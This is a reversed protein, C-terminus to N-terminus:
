DDFTVGFCEAWKILNLWRWISQDFRRRGDVVLQWEAKAAPLNLVPIDGGAGHLVGEVWPRLATLWAREPTAFGIKDRRDLIADPVLGRMAERFVAKTTGDPTIVHQEPLSFVFSALEPTLFPVRSEISHAMSNRDEYRLLSPLGSEILSRRLEERLMRKRRPKPRAALTVGRRKFWSAELWKPALDKGVLKRMLGQLMPPLLVEGSFALVRFRSSGPLGGATRLFRWAQGWKGQLLLSTFRMSLYTRYGALMEDAGQGDLMVKIGADRALRFVRQQAYISTSGFPEDQTRILEDLDAVMEEPTPRVQHGTAGTTAVVMDAWREETLAPDAAIHTFTHIDLDEGQIRRMGCVIASSDIGGSLAAGVPVDSRLHLRVSDIFLERLRGAAEEFSIDLQEDTKLEWYRVPGTTPSGDLPVELYHASPLQRIESFITEAGLSPVGFRLYEYLRQPNAAASVGTLSLLSKIESAFALRGNWFVYYVPKIAFFDRALVIRRRQLDLVACGFMGVLRRFVDTGWEAYGTLLVETDSRSRFSRGLAELEERLEVFNYVEGNFVIHYRGDPTSMPQHGHPSLDLIALRRFGLALDFHRGVFDRAPPLGLADPTDAGGCPVVAQEATNVLLYGEDDPGRAKLLDTAALAEALPVARGEFDVIGFIGCM